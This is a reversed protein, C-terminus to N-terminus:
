TTRGSFLPQLRAAVSPSMWKWGTGSSAKWITSERPSRPTARLRTHLILHGSYASAGATRRAAARFDLESSLRSRNSRTCACQITGLPGIAARRPQESSGGAQDHAAHSPCRRRPASPLVRGLPASSRRAHRPRSRASRHGARAHARSPAVPQELANRVSCVDLRQSGVGLRRGLRPLSKPKTRVCDHEDTDTAEDAPLPEVVQDLRKAFCPRAIGSSRRTRTPSPSRRSSSVRVHGSARRRPRGHDKGPHCRTVRNRGVERGGVDDGHRGDM